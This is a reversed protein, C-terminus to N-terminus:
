KPHEKTRLTVMRSISANRSGLLGKVYCLAAYPNSARLLQLPSAAFQIARGLIRGYGSQHKHLLLRANRAHQYAELADLKRGDKSHAILAFDLHYAYKGLAKARFSLDAEEYYMFLDECYGGLREFTPLDVLACCGSFFDTRSATGTNCVPQGIGPHRTLWAPLYLRGGRYWITSQDPWYVITPSVFGCDSNRLFPESLRNLLDSGILHIDLNLLLARTYGDELARKAALNAGAAYGLNREPKLVTARNAFGTLPRDPNNAVLYIGAVQDELSGLQDLVREIDEDAEGYAVLVVAARNDSNEDRANVCRRIPAIDSAGGAPAGGSM